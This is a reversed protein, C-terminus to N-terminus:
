KGRDALMAEADARTFADLVGIYEGSPEFAHMEAKWGGEDVTVIMVQNVLGHEFGELHNKGGVLFHDWEHVIPEGHDLWSGGGTICYSVGNLHGREYEHTHGSFVVDFRHTELLPVLHQRLYESGDIWMECFPPVHIFLFRHRANRVEDRDLEAPLWRRVDREMTRYEICVFYADGYFFSYSGYGPDYGEGDKSPLDAFRRIPDGRLGDHNGWAIFHPVTRGLYKAVRDLYMMRTQEYSDGDSAHDGCGVAFDVEQEALFRMMANTPEFPDEDYAGRNREQTDSFVGFSFPRFGDPATSFTGHSVEDGITVAYRYDTGPNLGDFVAKHVVTDGGSDEHSLTPAVPTSDAADGTSVASVTVEVPAATEWLISIGDPRVNMLYPETLFASAGAAHGLVMVLALSFLRRMM